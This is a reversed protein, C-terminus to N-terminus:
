AQLLSKYANPFHHMNKKILGYGHLFQNHASDQKLNGKQHLQIYEKYHVPPSARIRPSLSRKAAPSSTCLMNSLTLPPPVTPTKPASPCFSKATQLHNAGACSLMKNIRIVHFPHIHIHMHFGEKSAVKVLYKNACICAAELAKSSLQEYENSVMHVCTPFDNVSAKKRGLNFIRIKPNPVGRNFRSKPYPKNKCYRYCRAPRRTTIHTPIT